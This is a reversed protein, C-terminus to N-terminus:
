AKEVDCTAAQACFARRSLYVTPEMVSSHESASEKTPRFVLHVGSRKATQGDNKLVRISSIRWCDLRPFAPSWPGLRLSNNIPHEATAPILAIFWLSPCGREQISKKYQASGAVRIFFDLGTGPSPRHAPFWGATAINGTMFAVSATCTRLEARSSNQLNRPLCIQMWQRKM